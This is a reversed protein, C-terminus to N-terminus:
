KEKEDSLLSTYIDYLKDAEKEWTFLKARMYGAAELKECLSDDTALAYMCEAIDDESKPDCLLAADGAVEPLSAANATLVPAGCAMAELIPIGFGEYLSPFVFARARSYLCVKEYESLYGPLIIRDEIGEAKIRELIKDYYWGLKGALVLPYAEKGESELRKVMKAYAGVLAYINKRPEITGLYLFYGKDKLGKAKLIEACEDECEIKHFKETDVGCYIVSMKEKPVGYLETFEKATFESIVIIKDSRKISRKLRSKLMIRTRRTVTEPYRIFGFDHVTVVKKGKAGPPILFNFFHTVDNKKGFLISYPLPFVGQILKYLGASLLPFGTIKANKSEYQKMIKKKAKRGNLSFFTYEFEDNPHREVIRTCLEKEYTGIGTLKENCIPVGDFQIRM